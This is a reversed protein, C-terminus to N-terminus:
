RVARLVARSNFIYVVPALSFRLPNRSMSEVNRFRDWKRGPKEVFFDKSNNCLDHGGSVAIPPKDAHRTCFRRCTVVPRSAHSREPRTGSVYLLQKWGKTRRILIVKNRCPSANSTPLRYYEKRDNVSGASIGMKWHYGWQCSRFPLIRM